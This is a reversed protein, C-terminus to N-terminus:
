GSTSYPIESEKLRAMLFDKLKQRRDYDFAPLICIIAAFILVDGLLNELEDNVCGLKERWSDCESSLEDMLKRGPIFTNEKGSNILNPFVLIVTCIRQLNPRLLILLLFIM